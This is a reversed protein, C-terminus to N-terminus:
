MTFEIVSTQKKSRIFALAFRMKQEGYREKELPPVTLANNHILLQYFGVGIKVLAYQLQSQGKFRAPSKGLRLCTIM